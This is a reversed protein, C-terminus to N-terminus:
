NRPTIWDMTIMYIVPPKKSEELEKWRACSLNVTLGPASFSLQASEAGPAPHESVYSFGHRPFEAKYHANVADCEMKTTYLGTISDISALGHVELTGFDSVNILQSQPPLSVSRLRQKMRYMRYFHFRPAQDIWFGIVLVLTGM